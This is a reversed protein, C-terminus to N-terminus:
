NNWWWSVPEKAEVASQTEAPLNVFFDLGLRTELADLSMAQGKIATDSNEYKRHEFYFGVGTYEGTGSGFNGGKKYALLAKFYGTPVTVDKGENDQVKESAGKLDAGTVVYLTDCKGAWGRVKGELTSWIGGNFDNRQPTMNVGYYTEANAGYLYRDASPIQHGRDYTKSLSYGRYLVAQDAKPVKPDLGWPEPNPRSGSGKLGSNLPYAVWVAVRASPDYYYSYNRLSRHDPMPHHIFYLGATNTAPLELWKGPTDSRLVSVEGAKAQNMPASASKSGSHLVLRVYRSSETSPNAEWSLQVTANGTGSPRDVRAWPTDSEFEFELTWSGGAVVSIDQSGGEWSLQPEPVTLSLQGQLKEGCSSSVLVLLAAPLCLIPLFVKM